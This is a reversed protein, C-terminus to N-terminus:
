DDTTENGNGGGIKKILEDIRALNKELQNVRKALEPLHRLTAEVKKQRVISQAPYGFWIEGEPVDKSIGSKAALVANDKINVHGVIGVQGAITVHKGIKTSGSIGSQAAIVTNEEIIVNHAVQIQNDLKCGKRILTEGLTARDITCNAGIEVNDEIRVNGMQPIKKYTEGDPAFGFGDSGIVTGNHVIVQDGLSCNERISVNPYLFSM